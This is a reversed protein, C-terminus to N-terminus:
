AHTPMKATPDNNMIGLINGETDHAYALWGIGPIAMKPVVIIGGAAPIRQLMEDVSPVEITCPFANLGAGPVPRDGKRPMLGGDIGVGEGTKIAWYEVEGWKQFKWGFLTSYFRMARATDDVQLEFHVPRFM